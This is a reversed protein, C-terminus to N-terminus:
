PGKPPGRGVSQKSSLLSSPDRIRGSALAAREDEDMTENGTAIWSGFGNSKM